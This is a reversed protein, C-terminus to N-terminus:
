IAPVGSSISQIYSCANGWQDTVACNHTWNQTPVPTDYVLSISRTRHNSHAVRRLVEPRYVLLIRLRVWM